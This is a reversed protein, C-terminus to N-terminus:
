TKPFLTICPLIMEQMSIGGHQFTFRYEKTYEQPHTPYIFYYDEKAIGYRTDNPLKYDEPNLIFLAHKSDCRLAPGYKYRLNHSMTKSGYITTPKRALIAGHDTTLVIPSDQNALEKLLEYIHSRSFWIETLLWLGSEDPILEEVVQSERKAHVLYDLFNVVISIIPASKFKTLTKKLSIEEGLNRVKVYGGHLNFKRLHLDFLEKEYKNEEPHWFHHYKTAIEAPYLGSYIANRAFPTASPLISCYFNEEVKYLPLLLKKISLWQDLRLCDLIILYVQKNEVTHPIVFEPVVQPSLIPTDGGTGKGHIWNMYNAEIFRSFEIESEEFLQLHLGWIEQTQGIKMNWRSLEMYISCWEKFSVVQGIKERMQQYFKTYDEPIESRILDEKELFRKCTSILQNPILPKVLFDDAGSIYAKDIIIEEESKTVMVVPIAPNLERILKLTSIGDRGPMIEDLLVLDFSEKKLLEYGEDGSTVGIVAYGHNQLLIILPRLLLIEDDIWLIRKM